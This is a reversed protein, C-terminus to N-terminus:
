LSTATEGGDVTGLAGWIGYLSPGSYLKLASENSPGGPQPPNKDLNETRITESFFRVGGDAMCANVGGTHYSNATNFAEGADASNGLSCSPANPPLISCFLTWSGRQGDGWRRGHHKNIDAANTSFTATGTFTKGSGRRDYCASPPSGNPNGGDHVRPVGAAMGARIDNSGETQFPAVGCESFLLTNSAGDLIAGIDRQTFDGRVFVGRGNAKVGNKLRGFGASAANFEYEPQDVNMRIDGFCGRYSIPKTQDEPTATNSDSPCLSSPLWDTWPNNAVNGSQWAGIIGSNTTWMAMIKDYTPTAEFYPLMQVFISARVRHQASAAAKDTYDLFLEKSAYCGAFHGYADHMNHAAIGLQKLNNMCQMRRAAERAAQVAPLLLAVLVGIIAIVVLLEVLTFGKHDIRNRPCLGRSTQPYSERSTTEGRGRKAPRIKRM